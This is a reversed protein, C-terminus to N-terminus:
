QTSPPPRHPSGLGQPETAGLPHAGLTPRQNETFVQGQVDPEIVANGVREGAAWPRCVHVQDVGTAVDPTQHHLPELREIGGLQELHRWRLAGLHEERALLRTAGFELWARLHLRRIRRLEQM